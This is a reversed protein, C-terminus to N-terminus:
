PARARRLERARRPERSDRAEAERRANLPERTEQAIHNENKTINTMHSIKGLVCGQLFRVPLLKRFRPKQEYFIMNLITGHWCTIMVMATFVPDRPKKSVYSNPALNSKPSVKKQRHDRLIRPQNRNPKAWPDEMCIKRLVSGLPTEALPAAM